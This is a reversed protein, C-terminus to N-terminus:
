GFLSPGGGEVVFIPADVRQDGYHVEVVTSGVVLLLESSYAWLQTNSPQLVCNPLVSNYTRKSVLSVAAETDLEMWLPQGNITVQMELPQGLHGRTQHLLYTGEADEPAVTDPNVRQM